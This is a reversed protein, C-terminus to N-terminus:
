ITLDDDPDSEDFDDEKDPVYLIRGGVRVKKNFSINLGVLGKETQADLYPLPVRAKAKREEESLNLGLDFPLASLHTATGNGVTEGASISNEVFKDDTRDSSYDFPSFTISYDEEISFQELKEEATGNRKKTKTRCLTHKDRARLEFVTSAISEIRRWDENNQDDESESRHVLALVCASLEAIQTLFWSTSPLSFQEILVPLSDIFVLSDRSIDEKALRQRIEEFSDFGFCELAVFKPNNKLADPLDMRLHLFLLSCVNLKSELAKKIVALSFPYGNIGDSAYVACIRRLRFIDM